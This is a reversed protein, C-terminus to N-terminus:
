PESFRKELPTRLGCWDGPLCATSTRDTEARTIDTRAEARRRGRQARGAIELRDDREHLPESPLGGGAGDRRGAPRGRVREGAAALDPEGLRAVAQVGLRGVARTSEEGRVDQGIRDDDLRAVAHDLARGDADRPERDVGGEVRLRAARHQDREGVDRELVVRRGDELVRGPLPEVLQGVDDDVERSGDAVAHEVIGSVPVRTM